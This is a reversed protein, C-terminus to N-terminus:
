GNSAPLYSDIPEFINKVKKYGSKGPLSYHIQGNVTWAKDVRNDAQLEKLRSHAPPTLDEVIALRRAGAEREAESLVSAAKRNKMVAFKLFRSSLRCIVPAPPSGAPPETPMYARFCAEIANQPQPVTALDGAAKAAALAPRILREYVRASLGKYNDVSEGHVTPLNFIRVTCSRLQQERHNFSTKLRLIDKSTESKYSEFDDRLQQINATNSTVDSRLTVVTSNLTELKTNVGDIKSDLSRLQNLIQDLKDPQSAM